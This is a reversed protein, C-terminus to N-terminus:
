PLPGARGGGSRRPGCGPPRGCWPRPSPAQWGPRPPARRSGGRGPGSGRRDGGPRRSGQRHGDSVFGAIKAVSRSSRPHVVKAGSRPSSTRWSSALMNRSSGGRPVRPPRSGDGRRCDAGGLRRALFDIDRRDHLRRGALVKMAFAFEGSSAFARIGPEDLVIQKGEDPLRSLYVSAQNNLWYRPLGLEAAVEVAATHVETDPEFIADIERTAPRSKFALVMCSGGFIYIEARKGQRALKEGVLRLARLLTSEDLLEPVASSTRPSSCGVAGSPPLAKPWPASACPRCPPRSWWTSLFRSPARVLCPDKPARPLVPAGRPGRHPCGWRPDGTTTPEPALLQDHVEDPADRYEDLFEACCLLANDESPLYRQIMRALDKTTMPAYPRVPPPVDARSKAGHASM